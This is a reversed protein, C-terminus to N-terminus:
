AKALEKLVSTIRWRQLAWYAMEVAINFNVDETLQTFLDELEDASLTLPMDKDYFVFSEENVNIEYDMHAIANRIQRMKEIIPCAERAWTVGKMQKLMEGFAQDEKLPKNDLIRKINFVLRVRSQYSTEAVFLVSLLLYFAWREYEKEGDLLEMLKLLDIERSRPYHRTIYKGLIHHSDKPNRKCAERLTNYFPRLHPRRKLKKRLNSLRESAHKKFINYMFAEDIGELEKLTDADVSNKHNRSIKSSQALAKKRIKEFETRLITPDPEFDEFLRSFEELYPRM